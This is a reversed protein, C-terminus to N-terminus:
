GCGVGYGGWGTGIWDVDVDEDWGVWYCGLGGRGVEVSVGERM